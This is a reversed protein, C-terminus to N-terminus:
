EGPAGRREGVHQQQEQPHAASSDLVYEVGSKIIASAVFFVLVIKYIKEPDTKYLM